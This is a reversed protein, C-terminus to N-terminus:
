DRTPEYGGGTTSGLKERLAALARSYHAKVSGSSCGMAAATQRVDLGEWLRLLFVQQQRLPLGRVAPLLADIFRESHLRRDPEAAAHAPYHEWPRPEAVDEAAVRFLGFVRRRVLQRRHWDRIRSQLVRHFLPPWQEPARTAYKGALKMMADQVIDLADDRNGTAIEAMRFARREVGALFENLAKDNDLVTGKRGSPLRREPTRGRRAPPV